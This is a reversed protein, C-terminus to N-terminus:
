DVEKTMMKFASGFTVGTQSAASKSVTIDVKPDTNVAVACKKAKICADSNSITILKKSTAASFIADFNSIGSPIFVVKASTSSLEAPSIIKGTLKEAKGLSVFQDAGEKGATGDVVVAVEIDGKPAGEIFGIAKAITQVDKETIAAYTNHVMCLSSLVLCIQTSYKM